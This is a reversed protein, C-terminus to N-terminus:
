SRAGLAVEILTTAYGTKLLYCNLGSPAVYSEYHEDMFPESDKSVIVWSHTKRHGCCSNLTRIGNNWLWAIESAICSDIGVWGDERNELAFPAKMSVTNAHSGFEVDKCFCEDFLVRSLPQVHTAQQETPTM